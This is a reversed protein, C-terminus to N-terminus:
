EGTLKCLNVGSGDPNGHPMYLPGIEGSYLVEGRRDIVAITFYTGVLVQYDASEKKITARWHSCPPSNGWTKALQLVDEPKELRSVYGFYILKTKRKELPTLGLIKWAPQPPGPDSEYTDGLWWDDGKLKRKFSAETTLTAVGGSM